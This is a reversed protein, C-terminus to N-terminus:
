IIQKRYYIELKMPQNQANRIRIKIIKSEFKLKINFEFAIKLEFKIKFKIKAKRKFKIKFNINFKFKNKHAHKIQRRTNATKKINTERHKAAKLRGRRAGFGLRRREIGGIRVGGVVGVGRLRVVLRLVRGCRM